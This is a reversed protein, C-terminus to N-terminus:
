AGASKLGLEEDGMAVGFDGYCRIQLGDPINFQTEAEDIFPEERGDIFGIVLASGTPSKPDPFLYWQTDSQGSLTNGDQDTIGTNNLYPSTYPHYLGKHPNDDFERVTTGGGAVAITERSWLRKATTERTTGVLLVSPSVGIPHGNIVQNRFKQRALDLGKGEEVNNLESDAGSILNGNGASFFSGPNSLLLVLVAEEIRQGYLMGIGRAQAVIMGLDDNRRTKRDITLMAGFTDAQITRKSDTLSIHKLEGDTAVQRVKGDMAIRYMAHPRFDNLPRRSSIPM